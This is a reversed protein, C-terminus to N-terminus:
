EILALVAYNKIKEPLDEILTLISVDNINAFNLCSQIQKLRKELNYTKQNLAYKSYLYSKFLNIARERDDQLDKIVFEIKPDSASTVTNSWWLSANFDDASIPMYDLFDEMVIPSSELLSLDPSTKGVLRQWNHVKKMNTSNINKYINNIKSFLIENEKNSIFIQCQNNDAMETWSDMVLKTLIRIAKKDLNLKGLKASNLIYLASRLKNSFDWVSHNSFPEIKAWQGVGINIVEKDKHLYKAADSFYRTFMRSDKITFYHSLITNTILAFVLKKNTKAEEYIDDISVGECFMDFISIHKISDGENYLVTIKESLNIPFYNESGNDRFYDNIFGLSSFKYSSTTYYLKQIWSIFEKASKFKQINEKKSKSFQCFFNEAESKSDVVKMGYIIMKERKINENM